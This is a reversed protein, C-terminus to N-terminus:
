ALRGLLGVSLAVDQTGVAASGAGPDVELVIRTAPGPTFPVVVLSPAPTRLGLTAVAASSGEFMISPDDRTQSVTQAVVRLSGFFAARLHYRVILVASSWARTAVPSCVPVLSAATNRELTFTFSRRPMVPVLVFSGSKSQNKFGAPTGREHHVEDPRRPSTDEDERPAFYGQDIGRRPRVGLAIDRLRPADEDEGETTAFYGHDNGPRPRIGLAIERLRWVNDLAGIKM